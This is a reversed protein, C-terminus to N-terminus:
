GLRSPVLLSFLIPSICIVFNLRPYSSLILYFLRRPTVGHNVFVWSFSSVLGGFLFVELIRVWFCAFCGRLFFPFGFRVKIISPGSPSAKPDTTEHSPAAV